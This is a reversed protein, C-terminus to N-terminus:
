DRALTQATPEPGGALLMIAAYYLEEPLHQGASMFDRLALDPRQNTGIGWREM